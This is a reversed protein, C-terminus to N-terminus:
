DHKTKPGAYRAKMAKGPPKPLAKGRHKAFAPIAPLPKGKKSKPIAPLKKPKKEVVKTGVLHYKDKKARRNLAAVIEHRAEKSPVHRVAGTPGVIKYGKKKAAVKKSGGAAKPKAVRKKPPAKIGKAARKAVGAQHKKVRQAGKVYSATMRSPVPPPEARKAKLAARGKALAAKQKESLEGGKKVM